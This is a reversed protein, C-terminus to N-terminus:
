LLSVCRSYVYCDEKEVLRRNTYMDKILNRDFIYPIKLVSVSVEVPVSAGHCKRCISISIFTTQALFTVSFAITPIIHGGSPVCLAM